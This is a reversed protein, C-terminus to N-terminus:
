TSAYHAPNLGVEVAKIQLALNLSGPRNFAFSGAMFWAGPHGICTFLGVLENDKVINGGFVSKEVFDDGFVKRLTHDAHMYGTAMVIADGEIERGDALVVGKSTLRKIGDYCQKVKITGDAIYKLSGQDPYHGGGKTLILDLLGRGDVGTLFKFESKGVRDLLEKDMQYIMQTAGVMLTAAVPIPMSAALIDAESTSIGPKCYAAGVVNVKSNLSYIMNADRQLMTVDAGAEALDQAIDQGSSSSGIVIWRKSEYDPVESATKYQTSHVIPGRFEELGEFPPVYPTDSHFGTALVVHAVKLFTQTGDKELHVTWLKEKGDWKADTVTTNLRIPLQMIAQYHELWDAIQKRPVWTPFTEPFKLYPMHNEWIPDHLTLNMYRRRWSEGVRSLKDVLLAPVGLQKLRACLSLGSHGAGIILVRPRQQSMSEYKADDSPSSWNPGASLKHLEEYGRLEELKTLIIWAKWTGPATNGLRLYGSGSGYKTQFTFATEVLTFPGMDVLQPVLVGSTAPKLDSLKVEHAQKLCETIQDGHLCRIAWSLTVVDRWWSDNLFIDDKRDYSGSEIVKELKSFWGFVVEKANVSSHDTGHLILSPIAAKPVSM